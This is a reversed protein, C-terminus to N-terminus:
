QLFREPADLCLLDPLAFVPVNLEASLARAYQRAITLGDRAEDFDGSLDVAVRCGFTDSVSRDDVDARLVGEPLPVAAVASRIAPSTAAMDVYVSAFAEM